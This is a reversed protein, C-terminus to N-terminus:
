STNVNPQLDELQVGRQSYLVATDQMGSAFGNTSKIGLNRLEGQLYIGEKVLVTWKIYWPVPLFLNFLLFFLFFVIFLVM